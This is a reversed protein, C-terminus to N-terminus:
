PLKLKMGVMMFADHADWKADSGKSVFDTLEAVAGVNGLMLDAGLGGHWAFARQTGPNFFSTTQDYRYFKEGAGAILYPQVLIRPIPRIVLDGAAALMNGKGLNTRSADQITTGSVYDVTGRLFGLDLNGGLSLTGQRTTAVTQAGSEVQNVSGSPVYGGVMPTIAIQAHAMVPAALAGGVVAISAFTRRLEM